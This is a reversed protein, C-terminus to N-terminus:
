KVLPRASNEPPPLSPTAPRFASASTNRGHVPQPVILDLSTPQKRALKLALLVAQRAIMPVNRDVVVACSSLANPNITKDVTTFGIMSLTRKAKLAGATSLAAALALDETALLMGIEPSAALKATLAETGKEYPGDFTLREVSPVGNAKLQAELAAAMEDTGPRSKANSVILARTGDPLGSSKADAVLAEALVAATEAAPTHRVSALPASGGLPAVKRGMVVVPTGKARVEQLARTVEPDDAAEVVLASAAQGAVKRILGAQASPPEDPGPRDVTLIAHGLGAEQRGATVWVDREPSDQAQLIMAIRPAAPAATLSKLKKLEPSRPPVFSGSECGAFAGGAALASM